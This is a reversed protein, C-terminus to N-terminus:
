GPDTADTSADAEGRPAINSGAEPESRMPASGGGGVDVSPLSDDVVLDATALLTERDPQAPDVILSTEHGKAEWYRRETQLRGLRPDERNGTAVVLRRDPPVGARSLVANVDADPALRQTAARLGPHAYWLGGALAQFRDAQQESIELRHWLEREAAEAAA